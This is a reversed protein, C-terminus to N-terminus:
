DGSKSDLGPGVLRETTMSSFASNYQKLTNWDFHSPVGQTSNTATIQSLSLPGLM